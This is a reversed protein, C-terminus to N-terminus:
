GAVICRRISNIGGGTVTFSTTDLFNAILPVIDSFNTPEFPVNVTVPSYAKGETATYTGNATVNLSEVTVGSGSGQGAGSHIVDLWSLAM